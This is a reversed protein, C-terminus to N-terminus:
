LSIFCEVDDIVILLVNCSFLSCNVVSTINFMCLMILNSCSVLKYSACRRIIDRWTRFSVFVVASFSNMSPILMYLM